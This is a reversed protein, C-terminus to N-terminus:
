SSQPPANRRELEALMTRVQELLAPAGAAVRLAKARSYTHATINRLERFEFWAQVDALLGREHGVRILDRFNMSDLETPSPLERELERKLSKWALEFTFEFSQVVGAILTNRWAEPLGAFSPSQTIEVAEALAQVAAKLSGLDLTHQSNAM